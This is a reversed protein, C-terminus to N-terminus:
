RLRVPDGTVTLRLPPLVMEVGTLTLVALTARLPNPPIPMDRPLLKPPQHAAEGDRLPRVPAVLRAGHAEAEVLHIALGVPQFASGVGKREGLDLVLDFRRALRQVLQADRQDSLYDVAVRM